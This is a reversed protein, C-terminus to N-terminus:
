NAVKRIKGPRFTWVVWGALGAGALVRTIGFVRSSTSATIEVASFEGVSPLPKGPRAVVKYKPHMASGLGSFFLVVALLSVIVRVTNILNM